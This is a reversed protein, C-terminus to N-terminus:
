VAEGMRISEIYADAVEEASDCFPATLFQQEAVDYLHSKAAERDEPQFWAAGRRVFAHIWVSFDDGRHEEMDAVAFFRADLTAIDLLATM